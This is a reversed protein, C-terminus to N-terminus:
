QYSAPRGFAREFAEVAAFPNERQVFSPADLMVKALGLVRCRVDSAAQM